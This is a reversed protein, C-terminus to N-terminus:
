SQPMYYEDAVEQYEEPAYITAYEKNNGKFIIEKVWYEMFSGINEIEYLKTGYLQYVQKGRNLAYVVENFVGHSIMGSVTSFVLTDCDEIFRFADKMIDSEPQEQNLVESPNIVTFDDQDEASFYAMIKAMEYFEIPTGYKWTHHSYFINM